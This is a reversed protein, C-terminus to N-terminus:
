GEPAWCKSTAEIYIKKLNACGQIMIKMKNKREASSIVNTNVATFLVYLPYLQRLSMFCLRHHGQRLSDYEVVSMALDASRQVYCAHASKVQLQRIGQITDRPTAVADGTQVLLKARIPGLREHQLIFLVRNM